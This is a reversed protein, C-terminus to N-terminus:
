SIRSRVLRVMGWLSSLTLIAAAPIWYWASDAQKAKDGAPSGTTEQGTRETQMNLVKGATPVDAEPATTATSIVPSPASNASPAPRSAPPRPLVQEVSGTVPAGSGEPAPPVPLDVPNHVTFYFREERINGARDEVNIIITELGNPLKLTDITLTVKATVTVDTTQVMSGDPKAVPMGGAPVESYVGCTIRWPNKDLSEFIFRATGQVPKDDLTLLPKITPAESDTTVQQLTSWQGKKGATDAARVRWWFTGSPVQGITKSTGTVSSRARLQTAQRNHYSEYLYRQAGPVSSWSQTFQTGKVVAGDVPAALVPPPLQGPINGATTAHALPAFGLFGCLLLFMGLFLTFSAYLKPKTRFPLRM